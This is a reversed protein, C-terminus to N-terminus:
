RSVKSLLSESKISTLARLCIIWSEIARVQQSEVFFLPFSTNFQSLKTIINNNDCVYLDCLPIFVEAKIELKQKSSLIISTRRKSPLLCRGQKGEYKNSIEPSNVFLFSMVTLNGDNANWYLPM